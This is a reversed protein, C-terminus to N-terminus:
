TYVTRDEELINTLMWGATEERRLLGSWGGKAVERTRRAGAGGGGGGGDVGAAGGEVPSQSWVGPGRWRRHRRIRLRGGRRRAAAVAAAM